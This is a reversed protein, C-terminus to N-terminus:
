FVRSLFVLSLLYVSFIWLVYKIKEYEKIEKSKIYDELKDDLFNYLKPFSIKFIFWAVGHYILFQIITFLIIQFIGADYVASTPDILRLLFPSLYWLFIAIPITLFENWKLLFKFFMM